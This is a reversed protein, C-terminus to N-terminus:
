FDMVEIHGGEYEIVHKNFSESFYFAVLIMVPKPQPEYVHIGVERRCDTITSM